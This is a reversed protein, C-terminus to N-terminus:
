FKSLCEKLFGLRNTKNEFWCHGCHLNINGRHETWIFESNINEKVEKLDKWCIFLKHWTKVNCCYYGRDSEIVKYIAQLYSRRFGKFLNSNLIKKM